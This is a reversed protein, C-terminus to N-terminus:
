TNRRKFFYLYKIKNNSKNEDYIAQLMDKCDGAWKRCVAMRCSAQEPAGRDPTAGTVFRLLEFRNNACTTKM